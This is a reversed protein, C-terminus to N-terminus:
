AHAGKSHVPCGGYRAAGAQVTNYCAWALRARRKIGATIDASANTLGGLSLLQMAQGHRPGAPEIVLPSTRHGQNPTQLLLAETKKEGMTLGSVEVGMM